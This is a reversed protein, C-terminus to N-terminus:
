PILIPQTTLYLQPLNNLLTQSKNSIRRGGLDVRESLLTGSVVSKRAGGAPPPHRAQDLRAGFVDREVDASLRRGRQAGHAWQSLQKCALAGVDHMRARPLDSSCVDSSGDSIRLEDATRQQVFFVFLWVAM